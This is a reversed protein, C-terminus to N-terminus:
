VLRLAREVAKKMLVQNAFQPHRLGIAIATTGGLDYRGWSAKGCDDGLPLCDQITNPCNNWAKTSFVFIKSPGEKRIIRTFRACGANHQVDSATKFKEDTTGICEPVFNFFVVRDWFAAREEEFYNAVTTFFSDGKQSGSIVAKLIQRTFGAHDQFQDQRHHSYGVIAIRQNALASPYRKGRWYDHEIM